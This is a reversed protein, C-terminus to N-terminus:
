AVAAREEAAQPLQLVFRAGGEAPAEATIRGHHNRTVIFYSVALGLGTGMPKTTFFPEFLRKIVDQSLGPGNDQVEVRVMDGDRATRLVLTPELGADAMGAMAQAANSFLNLLVQEMEMQEAAIKPLDPAYERVIRIRGFDIKRTPDYGSGALEVSRELLGAVDCPALVSDSQCSFALISHVLGAAREGASQAGAMFKMIGRRECYEMMAPLSLGLSQAVERNAPLDAFLRRRINQLGQLVGGLPNNLEHAMGAALGGVSLMKESQIMVQRLQVRETVDDVRIVAGDMGAGELPFVLLDVYRGDHDGLPLSTRELSRGQRVARAVEPVLGSPLVDLEPLSRGLAQEPSLGTISQAARNWQTVLLERDTGVIVSPMSNIISDLYNRLTRLEHEYQKRDTIDTHTGVLRLARGQDDQRVVEGRALIWRWEGNLARMRFEMAFHVLRCAMCDECTKLAHAKDDPHLHSMWDDLTTFGANDEYGLMATYGPSYYVDGTAVNWDWVGDRVADLARQLRDQSAAIEEQQCVIKRIYRSALLYVLLATALVFLWGKWVQFMVYSDLSSVLWGLIEDSLLVWLGGVTAYISAAKLAPSVWPRSAHDM